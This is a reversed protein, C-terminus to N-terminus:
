PEAILVGSRQPQLSRLANHGVIRFKYMLDPELDCLTLRVYPGIEDYGADGRHMDVLRQPAFPCEVCGDTPMAELQVTVFDLNEYNGQLRGEIILCGDKRQATVLRWAFADEKEEPAPWAKYGLTCASILLCIIGLCPVLARAM